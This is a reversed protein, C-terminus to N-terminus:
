RICEADEPWLGFGARAAADRLTTVIAARNEVALRLSTNTVSLAAVVRGEAILPIALASIGPIVFAGNVVYGDRELRAAADRVIDADLNGYKLYRPAERRIIAECDCKPLSALLALSVGGVGLPRRSGVELTNVRIDTDSALVDICLADGRSPVSLCVIGGLGERAQQLSQRMRDRLQISAVDDGARAVIEYPMVGLRYSRTYPDHSLFGDEVLTQLLRRATATHISAPRAAAGLMMGEADCFAVVKLLALGKSLASRQVEQGQIKPAEM